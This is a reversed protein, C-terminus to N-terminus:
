NAREKDLKGVDFRKLALEYAGFLVATYIIDGFFSNRFFPIALTYCNLFGQVTHPYWNFFAWVAFNTIAFFIVSSIIAASLVSQWTQHMRLFIGVGYALLVSAYVSVMVQWDYFGIFYDSVIMAAVPIAFGWYGRVYAGAFISMAVIPTFNAPHDVLRSAAALLVIIIPIIINKM